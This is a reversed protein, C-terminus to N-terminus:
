STASNDTEHEGETLMKVEQQALKAREILAECQDASLEIRHTIDLEQVQKPKGVRRDVLYINAERDGTGKGKVEFEYHCQPCCAMIAKGDAMAQLNELCSGVDIRDIAEKFQTPLAKKRGAGPRRGGRSM